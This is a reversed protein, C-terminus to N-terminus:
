KPRGNNLRETLKGGELLQMVTLEKYVASYM